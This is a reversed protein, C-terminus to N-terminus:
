NHKNKDEESLIEYEAEITKGTSKTKYNEQRYRMSKNRKHIIFSAIPILIAVLIALFFSAWIAVFALLLILISIAILKLHRM